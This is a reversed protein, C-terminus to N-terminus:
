PAVKVLSRLQYGFTLMWTTGQTHDVAGFEPIFRLGLELRPQPIFVSGEVGVGFVRDKRQSLFTTLGPVQDATVKFQAYYPIGVTVNWPLSTGSVKRYFSRGVGGEFTMINGVTINTDTIGGNMKESNIEYTGLTSVSWERKSDHLEIGGQFINSLMGLGGNDDGGLEWKGSPVFFGWGVVFDARPKSWGLQLPQAYIDSFRVDGPVDLSTGEIRRKEYAVPLVQGGWNGGLLKFNSVWALGPAFFLSTIAPHAGFSDGNDNKITDSTYVHVPFVVTISPAGQSGDGVGTWGALYHGRLQANASGAFGCVIVAAVLSVIRTAGWRRRM